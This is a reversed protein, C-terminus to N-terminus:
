AVKVEASTAFFESITASHSTVPTTGCWINMYRQLWTERELEVFLRGVRNMEDLTAYQASTPPMVLHVAFETPEVRILCLSKMLWWLRDPRISRPVDVADCAVLHEESRFGLGAGLDLYRGDPCIFGASFHSPAIGFTDVLHALAQEREAPDLSYAKLGVSDQYEIWTFSM